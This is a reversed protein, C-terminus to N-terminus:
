FVLQMEPGEANIYQFGVLSYINGPKRYLESFDDVTVVFIKGHRAADKLLLTLLTSAYGRSRCTTNTILNTIHMVGEGPRRVAELWSAEENDVRLSMLLTDCDVDEETLEVGKISRVNVTVNM